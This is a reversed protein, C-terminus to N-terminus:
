DCPRIPDECPVVTWDGFRLGGALMRTVASAQSTPQMSPYVPAFLCM